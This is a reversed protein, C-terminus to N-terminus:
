WLVEVKMWRNAAGRGGAAEGRRVVHRLVFPERSGRGGRM